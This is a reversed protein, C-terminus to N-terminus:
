AAILERVMGAVDHSLSEDAVLTPETIQMLEQAHPRFISALREEGPFGGAILEKFDLVEFGVFKLTVPDIRFLMSGRSVSEADSSSAAFSVSLIDLDADYWITASHPDFEPGFDPNAAQLRQYFRLTEQDLRYNLQEHTEAM